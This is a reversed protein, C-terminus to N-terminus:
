SQLIEEIENAFVFLPKEDIILVLIRRRSRRQEVQQAGNTGHKRQKKVEEAFQGVEIWDCDGPNVAKELM